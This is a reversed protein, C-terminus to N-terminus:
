TAGMAALRGAGWARLATVAPAPLWRQFRRYGERLSETTAPWGTYAPAERV